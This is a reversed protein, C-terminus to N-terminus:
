YEMGGAHDEDRDPFYVTAEESTGLRYAEKLVLLLVGHLTLAFLSGTFIM